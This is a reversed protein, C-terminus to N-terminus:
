SVDPGIRGAGAGATAGNRTAPPATDRWSLKLNFWFNWATVIGIAILNALYRNM